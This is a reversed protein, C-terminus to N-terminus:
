RLGIPAGVPGILLRGGSPLLAKWALAVHRRTFHRAGEELRLDYHLRTAAHKQMVYRRRGGESHVRGEPEPTRTFDRKKRYTKLGMGWPVLLEPVRNLALIRCAMDALPGDWM